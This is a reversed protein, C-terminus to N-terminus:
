RVAPRVGSFRHLRSGSRMAAVRRRRLPRDLLGNVPAHRLRGLRPVVMAATAALGEIVGRGIRRWGMALDFSRYCRRWGMGGWCAGGEVPAARLHGCGWRVM